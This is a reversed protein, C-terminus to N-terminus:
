GYFEGVNELRKSKCLVVRAAVLATQVPRTVFAVRGVFTVELVVAFELM